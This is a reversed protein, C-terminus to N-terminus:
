GFSELGFCSIVAATMETANKNSQDGSSFAIFGDVVNDTGMKEFEDALCQKKDDTVTEQDEVQETLIQAFQDPSFCSFMLRTVDAGSEPDGVSDLLEQGKLGKDYSAQLKNKFAADQLVGSTICDAMDKDVSFPLGGTYQATSFPRHYKPRSRARVM